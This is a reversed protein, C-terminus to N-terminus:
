RAPGGRQAGRLLKVMTGFHAKAVKPMPEEGFARPFAGGADVVDPSGKPFEFGWKQGMAALARVFRERALVSAAAVALDREAKPTQLLRVQRGKAMLAQKIYREDGFQDAIALDCALGKELINEIARAHGWTLIANVTQMPGHLQNYKEPGIVVEDFCIASVAKAVGPM